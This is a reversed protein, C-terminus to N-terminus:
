ILSVVVNISSLMVEPIDLAYMYLLPRSCPADLQKIAALSSLDTSRFSCITPM